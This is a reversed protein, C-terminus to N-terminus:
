RDLQRADAVASVPRLGATLRRLMDLWLEAVRQIEHRQALRQRAAAALARQEAPRELLRALAAAWAWEDGSVVLGSREHEVVERNPGIDSVVPCLECAMAELLANSCGESRSTLLFIGARRYLELMNDCRGILEVGSVNREAVFERVQGALPGTGAVILKYRNSAGLLHWARLAKLPNKQETLRGAFLVRRARDPAPRDPPRFVDLDVGNTLHRVRSPPCGFRQLESKGEECLTVFATNKRVLKALISGGRARYCQCLDGFEGTNALRAVTPRRLAAAVLGTAVAEWPAQGAIAIDWSRRAALLSSALSSLFSLGFLPGREVTVVTRRILVGGVRELRPRGAVPRTFGTVACGAQAWRQGLSLMQREAGGVIPWFYSLAIAIRM